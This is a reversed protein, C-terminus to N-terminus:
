ITNQWYFGRISTCFRVEARSYKVDLASKQCHVSAGGFLTVYLSFVRDHKALCCMSISPIWFAAATAYIGSAEFATDRVCSPM